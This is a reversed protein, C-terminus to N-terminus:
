RFWNDPVFTVLARSVRSTYRAYQEASWSLPIPGDTALESVVVEFPMDPHACSCVTMPMRADNAMAVARAAMYAPIM